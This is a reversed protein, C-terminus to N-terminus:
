APGGVSSIIILLLLLYKLLNNRRQDEEGAWNCTREEGNLGSIKFKDDGRKADETCSDCCSQCCNKKVESYGCRETVKNPETIAWLCTREEGRLETIPFKSKTADGRCNSPCSPPYADRLVPQTYSQRCAFNIGILKLIVNFVGIGDDLLDPPSM